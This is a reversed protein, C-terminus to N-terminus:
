KVEEVCLERSEKALLEAIHEDENVPKADVVSDMKGTSNEGSESQIPVPSEVSSKQFKDSETAPNTNQPGIGM